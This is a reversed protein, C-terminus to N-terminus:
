SCLMELPNSNTGLRVRFFIEAECSVPGIILSAASLLSIYRDWEEPPIGFKLSYCLRDNSVYVMGHDRRKQHFFDIIQLEM